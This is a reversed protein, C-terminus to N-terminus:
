SRTITEHLNLIVRAASTWAALEAADFDKPAPRQGISLLAQAAKADGRYQELHRAVLNRILEVEAPEPHRATATRWAFAIRDSDSAGGERLIREAFARAAEVYTPDNLLALAQLPTNSRPREVVCEERSPADFAMLSPHLFTRQWYTYLGRRYQDTGKDNVWERNPFQLHAWYGAPQYPKVSPGGIKEVLLGGVALANDRVMEAPLRFRGQRALWKNYPDTRQLEASADSRQRYTGSMAMLKLMHKVDWGSEVFEVALWDLLEPHTPPSGQSGFDDPTDVIGEGYMLKWLRNVFVRATLPNKEDVFWRALDLRTPRREEIELAGLFSPIAPAVVEGSDDMWNGRPLVRVTRPNVAISILTTPISDVLAKREKELAAAQQRVSELLPAITRYYAALEDRQKPSRKEKPLDLITRINKPLGDGGSASVPRPTTTASLRFRGISHQSGYHNLLTITVAVPEAGGLDSKLEFIADNPKGTEPLIAWGTEPKGDIANTVHYGTQSHSATARAVAIPEGVAQVQFEGLVFNGNVARGPGEAPLSPHPLVELRLATVGAQELRFAVTFLDQPPNDEPEALVSDDDLIKLTAGDRSKATEPRLTIWQHERRALSVEWEEQAAALEPTHADLQKKLPALRADLADLQAQQDPLPMPTQSQRGVSKEQIDAFFAAFRYFDRTSYPDYKHDHCECCAMTGGLWVSSANRVRDADYKAQYEKPQAGGEETTLLLRNYGSAIRQDRTPNELLDGALQEVTFRDFPVNQDFAAIVWDRYLWVDRHNDSHYGGTDGYRVLDLWYVAMREGYAPSALLRDVLKEDADDSTDAVFAGVQQPAPPLGTLDFSLRRILTARDAEASPSLKKERLKALVFRDIENRIFPQARLSGSAPLTRTAQVDKVEPVAPREPAVYAWHEQWAAGEAIWRRVLEIQAQDLKKGSDPPPMVAFEDDSAIREFLPSKEPKGPVIAPDYGERPGTASERLDLRLEAQREGEDPGHCRYCTDSLIPRIDRNFDVQPADAAVASCAVTVYITGAFVSLRGTM